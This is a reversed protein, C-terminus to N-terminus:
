YFLIAFLYYVFSDVIWYLRYYFLYNFCFCVYITFFLYYFQPPTIISPPTCAATTPMPPVGPHVGLSSFQPPSRNWGRFECIWIRLHDISHCNHIYIYIYIYWLIHIYTYTYTYTYIYKYIYIYVYMYIYIYIHIYVYMHVYMFKLHHTFYQPLQRISQCM